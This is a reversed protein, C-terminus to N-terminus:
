FFKWFNYLYIIIFNEWWLDYVLFIIRHFFISLDVNWNYNQQWKRTVEKWMELKSIINESTNEASLLHFFICINGKKFSFKRNLLFFVLVTKKWFVRAITCDKRLLYENSLANKIKMLFKLYLGEITLLQQENYNINLMVRESIKTQICLKTMQHMHNKHVCWVISLNIMCNRWFLFFFLFLLFDIFLTSNRKNFNRHM